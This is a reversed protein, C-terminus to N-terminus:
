LKIGIGWNTKDVISINWVPLWLDWRVGVEGLVAHVVFSGKEHLGAEEAPKWSKNNWENGM